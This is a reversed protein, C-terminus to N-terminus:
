NNEDGHSQNINERKDLMRELRHDDGEGENDFHMQIVCSQNMGDDIISEAGAIPIRGFNIIADIQGQESARM